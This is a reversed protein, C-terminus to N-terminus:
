SRAVMTGSLRRILSRMELVSITALVRQVPLGSTAAVSDITTPSSEIAALVQREQENLQLEAPHHIEQGDYQIRDSLPGLEELIDEVREVLKAGERLLRHCGRSGRQDIPGPVAFVERGQEM